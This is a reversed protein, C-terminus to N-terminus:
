SDACAVELPKVFNHLDCSLMKAIEPDMFKIKLLEEFLFHVAAGGGSDGTLVSIKVDEDSIDNLIELM